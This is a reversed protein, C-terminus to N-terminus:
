RGRLNQRMSGRMQTPVPGKPIPVNSRTADLARLRGMIDTLDAPQVSRGLKTVHRALKDLPVEGEGDGCVVEHIPTDVMVREHKRRENALLAKLRHPNGEGILVIGPPGVVRHVIDQQKNFGVMPYTKWGKRLSSLAAAAAGKQGAIQTYAAKQARRGFVILGPLLAFTITGLVTLAIRLATPVAGLTYWFLLFGVVGGALLAALTYLGVKTDVERAMQYNQRLTKFVNQKPPEPAAM